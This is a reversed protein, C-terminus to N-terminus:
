FRTGAIEPTQCKGSLERAHTARNLAAAAPTNVSLSRREPSFHNFRTKAACERLESQVADAARKELNYKQGTSLSGVGDRVGDRECLESPVSPTPKGGNAGRARAPAVHESSDSPTSADGHLVVAGLM